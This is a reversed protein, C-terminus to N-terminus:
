RRRERNTNTNTVTYATSSSSARATVPSSPPTPYANQGNNRGMLQKYMADDMLRKGWLYHHLKFMPRAHALRHGLQHHTAVHAMRQHWSERPSGSSFEGDCFCCESSRPPGVSAFHTLSHAVWDVFSTFTLLCHLFNFPCEFSPPDRLPPVQLVGYGDPELIRPPGLARIGMSSAVSGSTISTRGSSATLGALSGNGSLMMSTGQPMASAGVYSTSAYSISNPLRSQTALRAPLRSDGQDALYDHIRSGAQEGAAGRNPPRRDTVSV